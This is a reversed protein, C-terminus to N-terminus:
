LSGINKHNKKSSPGSGRDGEEPDAWTTYALLSNKCSHRMENYDGNKAACHDVVLYMSSKIHTSM